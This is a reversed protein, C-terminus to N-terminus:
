WSKVAKTITVNTMPHAAPEVEVVEAKKAWKELKEALKATKGAAKGALKRSSVAAKGALKRSQKASKKAVKKAVKGSKVAVKGTAKGAVKALKASKAALRRTRSKLSKEKLAQKAAAEEAAKQEAAKRETAKRAAVEEVENKFSDMALRAAKEPEEKKKQAAQKMDKEEAAQKKAEQQAKKPAEQKKQKKKKFFLAKWGKQAIQLKAAKEEIERQKEDRLKQLEVKGLCGRAKTQIKTASEERLKECDKHIHSGNELQIRSHTIGIQEKCASCVGRSFPNSCSFFNLTSEVAADQTAVIGDPQDPEEFDDLQDVFIEIEQILAPPVAKQGLDQIIDSFYTLTSEVVDDPQDREESVKSGDETSEVTLPPPAKQGLSVNYLVKEGLDQIIDETAFGSIVSEENLPAM